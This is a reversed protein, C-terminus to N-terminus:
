AKTEKNKERCLNSSIHSLIIKSLADIIEDVNKNDKM